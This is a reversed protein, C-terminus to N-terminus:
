NTGSETKGGVVVNEFTIGTSWNLDVSLGLTVSSSRLDPVTLYAYQLSWEGIKFNATTMYDQIFVRPVRTQEGAEYIYPPLAHYDPWSAITKGSPDLEGILYFNTGNAILNDKGFFDQGTNNMIELAVYVKDQTAAAGGSGDGKFNDFVLTYNPESTGAISTTEGEVKPIAGNNTITKDYVYGQKEGTGLPLPLFNWGVKPSQGGILISKLIFSTKNPTIEKNDEVVSNDRNQIYKNNDKLKTGNVIDATYGLTTKLLSTGYNIDYKMAVSRTSSKVHSDADWGTWTAVNWDTTNAPYQNVAHETDSVRLPSNGFYILEAPYYYNNVTFSTGGVASADFSEPYYFAKTSPDFKYHTAGQPLNFLEPFSLLNASTLSGINGFSSPKTGASLPWNSDSSLASTLESVTKISVGSVSTGDIPLKVIDFYHKLELSILEAMYKAFAERQSTPTACRVSNIITWLNTITAVLGHGSGNRLEATQISTMQKYANMLKTELPSIDKDTQILSKGTTNGALEAWTLNPNLTTPLDFGYAPVTKTVGSVTESGSPHDEDDVAADGRNVNMVCTLVAAFLSEVEDLKTKDTPTLCKGLQFYTESLNKSVNYADLHGHTSKQNEGIVAKGYFLMTNTNLPLSMELVRRSETNSLTAPAAVLAMDYDKDATAVAKLYQGDSAQKFCMIHAQDIGRFQSSAVAQTADSTQRTTTENGTSVNFVFQTFVENTKPDFNPNVDATDESSTCSSLITAGTLAIASLLAYIFSKKM